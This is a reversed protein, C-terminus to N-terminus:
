SRHTTANDYMFIHDENPYYQGLIAMTHEVQALIDENTFYEERNKGPRFIVRASNKGDTSQLWGYDASVFDAIM